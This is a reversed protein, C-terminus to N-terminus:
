RCWVRLTTPVWIGATLAGLAWHGAHDVHQVRVVNGAGGCIEEATKPNGTSFMRGLWHNQFKSYTPPENFNAIEGRDYIEVTACSFSSFAVVCVLMSLLIKKIM